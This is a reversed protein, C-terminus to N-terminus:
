FNNKCVRLLFREDDFNIYIFLGIFLISLKVQQVGVKNQDVPVFSFRAVTAM